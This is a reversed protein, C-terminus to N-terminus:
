FLAGSERSSELYKKYSDHFVINDPIVVNRPNFFSFMEKSSYGNLSVLPAGKDNVLYQFTILFNLQPHQLAFQYLDLINHVIQGPTLSRFGSKVYTIGTSKEKFNSKLNKTVLAYTNGCLGRGVGWKAGFKLAANAAGKGHRGEPNSGFVFVDNQGLSQIVSGSWYQRSM